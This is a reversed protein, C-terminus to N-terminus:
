EKCSWVSKATIEAELIEESEIALNPSGALLGVLPDQSVDKQITSSLNQASVLYRKKLIQVFDFLLGQAENPLSDIDQHLQQVQQM